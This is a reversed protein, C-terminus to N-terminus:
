RKLKQQEKRMQKLEDLIQRLLQDTSVDKAAPPTVKRDPAADKKFDPKKFDPKKFDPKKFDQKKFDPKKFGGFPPMGPFAGKGFRPPGFGKTGWGFKRMEEKKKPAEAAPKRAELLKRIEALKKEIESDAPQEKKLAFLFKREPAAAPKAKSLEKQLARLEEQAQKLDAELKKIKAEPDAKSGFSRQGFAPAALSAVALLTVVTLFHNKM